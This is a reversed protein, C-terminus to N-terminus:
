AARNRAFLMDFEEEGGGGRFEGGEGATFSKKRESLTGQRMVM